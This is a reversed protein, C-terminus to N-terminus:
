ENYVKKSLIDIVKDPDNMNNICLLQLEAVTMIALEPYDNPDLNIDYFRNIHEIQEAPTYANIHYTQDLRGPRILAGDLADPKNTEVIIISGDFDCIGDLTNLFERM